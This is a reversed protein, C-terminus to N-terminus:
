YRAHEQRTIKRTSKTSDSIEPYCFPKCSSSSGLFSINHSTFSLIDRSNKVARAMTMIMILMIIINNDDDDDDDDKGECYGDYSTYMCIVCLRSSM